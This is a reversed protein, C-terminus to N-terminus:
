HRIKDFYENDKNTCIMTIKDVYVKLVNTFLSILDSNIYM